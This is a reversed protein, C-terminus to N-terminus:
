RKVETLQRQDAVISSYDVTPKLEAKILKTAIAPENNVIIASVEAKM